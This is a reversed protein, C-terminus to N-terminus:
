RSSAAGEVEGKLREELFAELEEPRFEGRVTYITKRDGNVILIHFPTGWERGDALRSRLAYHRTGQRKEIQKGRVEGLYWPISLGHRRAFRRFRDPDSYEAVARWQLGRSRWKRYVQGMTRAGYRCHRCWEALFSMILVPAPREGPEADLIRVRAGEQTIVEFDLLPALAPDTVAVIPAFERDDAQPGPTGMLHAAMGALILPVM